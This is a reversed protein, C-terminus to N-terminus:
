LWYMDSSEGIRPKVGRLALYGIRDSFHVSVPLRPRRLSGYHLLTLTFVSHLAKGITFPAETRIHLPVPTASAPQSSILFAEADNLVFTTGFGPAVIGRGTQAYLRPAGLKLVEVAHFTAGIEGAYLRLSDREAGRFPGNRHIVVTKGSFTDAPLLQRLVEPTISEADTPIEATRCSVFRGDSETMLAFAAGTQGDGSTGRRRAIDLGVVYDTYDLPKALVYPLGGIKTLLGLVLGDVNKQSIRADVVLTPLWDITLSKFDAYPTWDAENRSDASPLLALLVHPKVPKIEDVAKELDARAASPTNVVEIEVTLGLQKLKEELLAQIKEVPSAALKIIGLRLPEDTTGVATRQYPGSAKLDALLRASNYEVTHGGGLLITPDYRFDRAGFFHKTNQSSYADGILGGAKAVDAVKKVIGARQTPAIGTADQANKALLGFRRYHQPYLVIRLAGLVYHYQNYGVRVIWEGEPADEILAKSGEKKAIALLDGRALDVDLRGAVALIEGKYTSGDPSPVKDAVHLGILDRPDTLREAYARLDQKFLLYSEVAISLAPQGAVVWGRADCEREVTAKGDLTYKLAALVPAIDPNLDTFLGSAAFDAQAQADPKWGRILTLSKLDAFTESEAARIDRVADNIVSKAAHHNTVLANQTWVWHGTFRRGFRDSLRRGIYDADEGRLDLRYATLPPLGARNIPFMEAFVVATQETMAAM